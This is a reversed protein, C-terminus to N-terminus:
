IIVGLVEFFHVDLAVASHQAGLHEVKPQRHHQQHQHSSKDPLSSSRHLQFMKSHCLRSVAPHHERGAGFFQFLGYLCLLRCRVRGCVLFLKQGRCHVARNQFTKGQQVCFQHFFLMEDRHRVGIKLQQRHVTCLAEPRPRLKETQRRQLQAFVGTKDLGDLRPGDPPQGQLQLDVAMVAVLVAGGIFRALLGQPLPHGPLDVLGATCLRFLQGFPLQDILQAALHFASQGLLQHGSVVKGLLPLEVQPKLRVIDVKVLVQLHPVLRDLLEARLKM